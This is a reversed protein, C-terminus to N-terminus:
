SWEDLKSNTMSPNYVLNCGSMEIKELLDGIYKQQHMVIGKKVKLFAM